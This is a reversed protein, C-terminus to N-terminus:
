REVSISDIYEVAMESQAQKFIIRTRYFYKISCLPLNNANLITM